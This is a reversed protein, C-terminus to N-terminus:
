GQTGGSWRGALRAALPGTVVMHFFRKALDDQFVSLVLLWRLLALM